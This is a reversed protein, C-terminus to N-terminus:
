SPIVALSLDSDTNDCEDINSDATAKAKNKLMPCDKKWHFACEDKSPKVKSKERKGKKKQCQSHSRAVLADARGGSSVKKEKKRMEYSYLASCVEKLTM